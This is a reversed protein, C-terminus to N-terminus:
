GAVYLVLELVALWLPVAEGETSPVVVGCSLLLRGVVVSGLVKCLVLKHRIRRVEISWVDFGPTCQLRSRCRPPHSGCPVEACRSAGPLVMHGVIELPPSSTGQHVALLVRPAQLRVVRGELFVKPAVRRVMELLVHPVEPRVARVVARVVLRGPM